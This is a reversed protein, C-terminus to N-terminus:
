LSPSPCGSYVTKYYGDAEHYNLEVEGRFQFWHDCAPISGQGGHGWDPIQLQQAGSILAWSLPAFGATPWVQGVGPVFDEGWRASWSIPIYLRANADDGVGINEVFKLGQYPWLPDEVLSVWVQENGSVTGTIYFVMNNPEAENGIRHWQYHTFSYTQVMNMEIWLELTIPAYNIPAGWPPYLGGTWGLWGGGCSGGAPYLTLGSDYSGYATDWATPNMGWGAPYGGHAPPATANATFAFAAILLLAMVLRKM